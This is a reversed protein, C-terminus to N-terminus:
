PTITLPAASATETSLGLRWNEASGSAVDMAQGVSGSLGVGVGVGVAVAV